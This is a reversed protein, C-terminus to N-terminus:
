WERRLLDAGWMGVPNHFYSGAFDGRHVLKVPASLRPPLLFKEVDDVECVMWLRTLYMGVSINM